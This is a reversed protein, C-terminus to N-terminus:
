TGAAATIRLHRANDPDIFQHAHNREMQALSMRRQFPDILIVIQESHSVQKTPLFYIAGVIITNHPRM